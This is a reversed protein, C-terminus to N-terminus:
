ACVLCRRQCLYSIGFGNWLSSDDGRLNEKRHFKAWMREEKETWAFWKTDRVDNVMEKAEALNMAMPKEVVIHKKAEATAIAVDAICIIPCLSTLQM